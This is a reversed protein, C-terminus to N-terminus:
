SKKLDSEEVIELSIDQQIDKHLHVTAQHTGLVKIPAKFSIYKRQILHGKEKLVGSVQLPTISGYINGKESAKTGITLSLSSLTQALEQATTLERVRKHESQSQNEKWMRKLSPSALTALGQPILFNRGYGAKVKVLDNKPGLNEVPKQLIVEM